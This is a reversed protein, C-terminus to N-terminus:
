VFMFFRTQNNNIHTDLLGKLRKITRESWLVFFRSCEYWRDYVLSIEQNVRFKNLSQLYKKNTVSGFYVRVGSFSRFSFLDRHSHPSTLERTTRAPNPKGTVFPPHSLFWHARSAYCSARAFIAPPEDRRTWVSLFSYRLSISITKHRWHRYQVKRPVQVKTDDDETKNDQYAISTGSHVHM